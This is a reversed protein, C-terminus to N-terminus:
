VVDAFTREMRKFYVLGSVLLVVVMLASLAILNSPADGGTFSWRFGQVVGTMPNLGLALTWALSDTAPPQWIVPTLFFWLQV